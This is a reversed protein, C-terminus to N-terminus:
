LMSVLMLMSVFVLLVRARVCERGRAHVRARAHVRVRICERGRAHRMMLNAQSRRQWKLTTQMTATCCFKMGNLGTVLENLDDYALDAVAHAM